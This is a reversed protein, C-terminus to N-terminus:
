FKTTVHDEVQIVSNPATDVVVGVSRDPRVDVLRIRGLYKDGRYITMTHENILGDDQGVSIEVLTRNGKEERKASLIKGDVAPPPSSKVSMVRPDTPLDKSALYARMTGYNKLLADYKEQNDAVKLKLSFLEDRVSNLDGSLTSRSQTLEMNRARQVQAEKSREEAEQSNLEAVTRQGDLSTKLSKNETDLRGNEDELSKAKGEWTTKENQTAALKANLETISTQLAQQDTQAQTQAATATKALADHKTRWNTQSTYVAGAFAMFLVSLVLHVVVLVKGLFTM